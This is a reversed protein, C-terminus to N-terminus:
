RNSVQQKSFESARKEVFRKASVLTFGKGFIVCRKAAGIKNGERIATDIEFRKEFPIADWISNADEESM